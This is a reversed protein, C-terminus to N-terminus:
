VPSETSAWGRHPAEIIAYVLGGIGAIAKGRELPPFVNTLVSLTAPMVFAASVVM